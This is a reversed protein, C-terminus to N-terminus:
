PVGGLYSCGLYPCKLDAVRAVKRLEGETVEWRSHCRGCVVAFIRTTVIVAVDASVPVAHQHVRKPHLATTDM